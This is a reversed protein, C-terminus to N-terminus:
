ASRETLEHIPLHGEVSDPEKELQTLLSVGASGGGILFKHGDAHVIAVFRKDGLSVSDSVRLPKKAAPSYNKQLWSFARKM